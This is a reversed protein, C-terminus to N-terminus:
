TEPGVPESSSAPPQDSEDAGSDVPRSARREAKVREVSKVLADMLDVVTNEPDPQEAGM